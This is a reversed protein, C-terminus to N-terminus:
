RAIVGGVPLPNVVVKPYVVSVGAAQLAGDDYRVRAIPRVTDLLGGGQTAACQGAAATDALVVEVVGPLVNVRRVNIERNCAGSLLELLARRGDLATNVASVIGSAVGAQSFLTRLMDARQDCGRGDCSLSTATGQVFDVTVTYPGSVQPRLWVDFRVNGDANCNFILACDRNVDLYATRTLQVTRSEPHITVTAEDVWTLSGTADEAELASQALTNADFGDLAAAVVEELAGQELRLSATGHNALLVSSTRNDMRASLSAVRVSGRNPAGSVEVHRGTLDGNEFLYVSSTAPVNNLIVSSTTDNLAGLAGAFRVPSDTGLNQTTVAGTFSAGGYLSFTGAIQGESALGTYDLWAGLAPVVAGFGNDFVSFTGGGGAMTAPAALPPGFRPENDARQWLASVPAYVPFAGYIPHANIIGGQFASRTEGSPRLTPDTLPRGLVGTHRGAAVYPALVPGYVAPAGSGGVHATSYLLGRQHPRWCFVGVLTMPATEAGLDVGDARLAALKEDLAGLCTTAPDVPYLVGGGDTPIDVRDDLAYAPSTVAGAVLAALLSTVATTKRSNM